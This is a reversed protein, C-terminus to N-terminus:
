NSLSQRDTSALALRSRLCAGCVLGVALLVVEGPDPVVASGALSRADGYNAQWAALDGKSLPNPSQGRQWMAFDSGNVMGDANFDGVITGVGETLTLELEYLQVADAAGQVRVFYQGGSLLPLGILVEMGGAGTNNASGLLSTGNPSFVTLSLDNASTADTPSQTGGVPGESFVGGRPILSV